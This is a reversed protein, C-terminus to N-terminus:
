YAKKLKSRTEMLIVGLMNRGKKSSGRGWYEDNTTDEVINEDGTAILKEALDKNQSFKVWIVERMISDKVSEWDKRLPRKRDRGISAALMPSGAKLVETEHKSGAFKQSQFAHESTKCTKGKYKLPRRYFNSMWGYEGTHSYFYITMLEGM